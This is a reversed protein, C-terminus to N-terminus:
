FRVQGWSGEPPPPADDGSVALAIATGGAVAGVAAWVWWREYWAPDDRVLVLYMPAEPSAVQALAAGSRDRAELYLRVDGAEPAAAVGECAGAEDCGLARETYDDEEGRTLAVVAATRREPDRLRAAVRLGDDVARPPGDLALAPRTARDRRVAEFAEVLKPSTGRPLEHAPDLALLRDFARAASGPDALVAYALGLLEYIQVLEEASNGERALARTAKVVAEDYRLEAYRAKAAALDPNKAHAPSAIAAVLLALTCVLPRIM